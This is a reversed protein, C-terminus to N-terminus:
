LNNKYWEITQKIGDIVGTEIEYGLDKEIASIDALSDKIDGPRNPKLEPELDSGLLDALLGYLKILSYRDGCAVNFVKQKPYDAFCAHINAAIVNSIHTFDRTQSGDGFFVPRKNNLIAKVFLPIVASYPSDPDQRKGFVNFYRLGITELGYTRFFNDAYLEKVYKTVAYPSLLNGKHEEKKPLTKSDGYVSSSSAYVVRKVNNLKASEFIHLTGNINAFNSDVPNKISRPVSALAAQHLVYDVNEMLRICTKLDTIDGEVFEFNPKSMFEEINKMHGTSLNDLVIVKKANNKLLYECLNSGIFGAGGTILFTSAKVKDNYKELQKM